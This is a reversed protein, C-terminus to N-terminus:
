ILAVLALFLGSMANFVAAVRRGSLSSAFHDHLIAWSNLGPLGANAPALRDAFGSGRRVGGAFNYASAVVRESRLSRWSLRGELGQARASQLQRGCHERESVCSADM